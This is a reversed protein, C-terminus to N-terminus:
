TSAAAICKCKPVNAILQGGLELHCPGVVALRQRLRVLACGVSGPDRAAWSNARCLAQASEQFIGPSALDSVVAPPTPGPQSFVHDAALATRLYGTCSADAGVCLSARRASSAGVAARAM